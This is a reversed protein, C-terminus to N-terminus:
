KVLLVWNRGPNEWDDKVMERAALESYGCREYLRRAGPNADSVIISFGKSAAGAMQQEAYELLRTGIGQGRFQPYASLIETYWHGPRLDELEQLPVFMAPMTEYDIVEPEDPTVYGILCAAVEGEVEAIIANRYSFGGEERAARRRGVEWANEGEEAMREWLYLSMGEGAFNSFEAMARADEPTAKRITINSLPIRM